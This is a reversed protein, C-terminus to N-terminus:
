VLRITPLTLHTYSVPSYYLLVTQAAVFRPHQELQSLLVASRQQLEAPSHTKKAQAIENRLRKKLEKTEM